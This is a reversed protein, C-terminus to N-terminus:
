LLLAVGMLLEISGQEGAVLALLSVAQGLDGLCLATHEDGEIAQSGL